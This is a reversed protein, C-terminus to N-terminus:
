VQAIASPHQPRALRHSQWQVLTDEWGSREPVPLSPGPQPIPRGVMSFLHIVWLQPGPYCYLWGRSTHSGREGPLLAPHSWGSGPHGTGEGM